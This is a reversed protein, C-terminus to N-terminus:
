NQAVVEDHCVDTYERDVEVSDLIRKVTFRCTRDCGVVSCFPEFVVTSSGEEFQDPRYTDELFEVHKNHAAQFNMLCNPSREMIVLFLDPLAPFIM